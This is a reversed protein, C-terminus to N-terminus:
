LADFFDRAAMEPDPTTREWPFADFFAGAAMMEESRSLGSIM